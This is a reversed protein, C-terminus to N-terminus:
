RIEADNRESIEKAIERIDFEPAFKEAVHCIKEVVLVEEELEEAIEEVTKNKKMKKCIQSVLRQLDGVAEGKAIGKAIGKEIGREIGIAEGKAMGKEIGIAEGEALRREFEEWLRMYKVTVEPDRKVTEVMGHIKRLDENVANEYTTNEMYCLLQKLEEALEGETGKTYLFLTSAGDEYEMGPVELCRNKVTYRMRNWGFPDFPLIMIIVVNKLKDYDLGAQLSRAAIKAHYFRVRRPLIKRDAESSKQDPEMDYVTAREEANEEIDAEMYVDLRTGHMDSDAGYFVKQAAVSM